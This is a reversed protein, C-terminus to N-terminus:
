VATIYPGLVEQDARDSNSLIYLILACATISANLVTNNTMVSDSASSFPISM